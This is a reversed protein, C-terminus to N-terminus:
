KFSKIFFYSFLASNFLGLLYYNNLEPIPSEKISLNYFSQSTLSLNKDYTACIKSNQSIQRIIIRDEYVNFDKYNIGVKSIDIYKFQTVQYRKISYLFLHFNEKIANSPIADYIIYESNKEDLISNCTDCKLEKQPIPLYKSCKKCFIIKGTKSLEVGRSLVLKVNFKDPLDKLKPFDTTLHELILIDTENLHILFKYSWNELIEQPLIEEAQNSLKLKILNKKRESINDEKELILIINSVIPDIFKPGTHYIEKIKTTDYISYDYITYKLRKNENAM